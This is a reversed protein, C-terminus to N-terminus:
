PMGGGGSYAPIVEYGCSGLADKVLEVTDAEDDVIMVTKGMRIVEEKTHFFLVKLGQGRRKRV